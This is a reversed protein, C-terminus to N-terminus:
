WFTDRYNGRQLNRDATQWLDLLIDTVKLLHDPTLAERFSLRYLLNQERSLLELGFLPFEPKQNVLRHFFKVAMGQSLSFIVSPGELGDRSASLDLGILFRDDNLLMRTQPSQFWEGGSVPYRVMQFREEIKFQIQENLVQYKHDVNSNLCLLVIPTSVHNSITVERSEGSPMLGLDALERSFYDLPLQTLKTVSFQSNFLFGLLGIVFFIIGYFFYIKKWGSMQIQM